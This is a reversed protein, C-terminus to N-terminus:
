DFRRLGLEVELHQLIQRRLRDDKADDVERVFGDLGRLDDGLTDPACQRV